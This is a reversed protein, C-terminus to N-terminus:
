TAAAKAPPRSPRSRKRRAAAPPAAQIIQETDPADPYAAMYAREAAKEEDRLIQAWKRTYEAVAKEITKICWTIDDAVRACWAANSAMYAAIAADADAVDYGPAMHRARQVDDMGRMTRLWCGAHHELIYPVHYLYWTSVLLKDYARGVSVASRNPYKVISSYDKQEDGATRVEYLFFRFITVPANSKSAVGDVGCVVPQGPTANLAEVECANMIAALYRYLTEYQSKTREKKDNDRAAIHERIFARRKDGAGGDGGGAGPGDPERSPAQLTDVLALILKSIQCHTHWVESWIAGSREIEPYRV